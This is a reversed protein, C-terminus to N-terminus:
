SRADAGCATGYLLTCNGQSVDQATIALLKRSWRLELLHSSGSGPPSRPFAIAAASEYDSRTRARKNRAPSETILTETDQATAASLDRVRVAVLVASQLANAVTDLAQRLEQQRDRRSM